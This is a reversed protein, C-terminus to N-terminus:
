YFQFKTYFINKYLKVAHVCTIEKFYDWDNVKKCNNINVRYFGTM